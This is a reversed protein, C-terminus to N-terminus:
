VFSIICVFKNDNNDIWVNRRKNKTVIFNQGTPKWSSVSLLVLFSQCWRKGVVRDVVSVLVSYTLHGVTILKGSCSYNRQGDHWTYVELRGTIWEYDLAPYWKIQMYRAPTTSKRLTRALMAIQFLSLRTSECSFTTLTILERTQLTGHLFLNVGESLPPLTTFNGGKRKKFLEPERLFKSTRKWRNRPTSLECV